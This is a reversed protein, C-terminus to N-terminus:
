AAARQEINDNAPAAADFTARIISRVGDVSSQSGCQKLLFDRVAENPDAGGRVQFALVREAKSSDRLHEMAFTRQDMCQGATVLTKVYRALAQACALFFSSWDPKSTGRVFHVRHRIDALTGDLDFVVFM